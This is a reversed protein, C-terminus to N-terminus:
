KPVSWLIIIFGIHFFKTSSISHVPLQFKLFFYHVEKFGLVILRHLGYLYSVLRLVEERHWKQLQPFFTKSISILIAVWPIGRKFWQVWSVSSFFQLWTFKILSKISLQWICNKFQSQSYIIGAYFILLFTYLLLWDDNPGDTNVNREVM